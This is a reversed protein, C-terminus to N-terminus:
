EDDESVPTWSKDPNFRDMTKFEDLGGPGLDKQFVVGGQSVIKTSVSPEYRRRKTLEGYAQSRSVSRM